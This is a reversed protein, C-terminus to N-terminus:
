NCDADNAECELLVVQYAGSRPGGSVYTDLSLAYDGAAFTGQIIKDNREVCEGSTNLLHLDIDVGGGDLVLIRLRTSSPLNFRYLYEPGSEDQGSDCTPYGDINSHMSQSTDAAHTFPLGGIEFPAGPSGDGVQTSASTDPAAAGDVVTAVLEHLVELSVLNRVNYNFELGAADFVCPQTRGDSYVNGHIGDSVLGMSPLNVNALYLDVYPVQRAQAVGRSVANYTPVWRAARASDSRPNLGTVIPIIGAAIVQDVLQTFNSYFPFLATQPTTGRQMDNTGYNILAFRPNIADIETDLPSPTGTIAWVASMGSRAAATPRDFPTTGSADGARFHEITPMLHGRGDLELSYRSQDDDAFCYLLRQSVTGSAGVKMFVDDARQPDTAAITRLQDVVYPTLRSVIRDSAYIEPSPPQPTADMSTADAAFGADPSSGGSDMPVNTGSDAVGSDVFGADNATVGADHGALGSDLAVVGGDEPEVAADKAM